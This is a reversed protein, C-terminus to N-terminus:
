GAPAGDAARRRIMVATLDDAQAANDTFALVARYLPEILEPEDASLRRQLSATVREEGFLAGATSAAEFFGDTLLAVLSRPAFAFAATLMPADDLVGLPVSTAPRTEVEDPTVFLLPGQGAAVYELRHAHPDLIGLFATVFRDERLDDCLIGNVRAMIESLDTTVTLLGRMLSRCQAIVLAAGIGHGTADALLIAWRGDPLPMFDYADGGTEDASQNWGAIAYGDVAPAQRPFNAQQISRAIELERGLRQREAYAELLRARHLAVGAQAGLHEALVIDDDAFAGGRKNLGQLVGMLDGDLNRLPLTLLNRTKFGTKRDVEANFRPDAYANPVCIVETGAAAAGAIGATAPFRISADGTAVRAYLEDTDQDYLFITARECDLVEVAADVIEALLRDLDNTAALNRSVALISELKAVRDAASM